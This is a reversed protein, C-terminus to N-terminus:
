SSAILEDLKGLVIARDAVFDHSIWWDTFDSLIKGVREGQPVGRAIIDAGSIPLEPIALQGARQWADVWTPTNRNVTSGLKLKYAREFRARGLRFLVARLDEDKFQAPEILGVDRPMAALTAKMDNSLRLRDAIQEVLNAADSACGELPLLSALRVVADPAGAIRDEFDAIVDFKILGASVGLIRNLIGTALMQHLVGGAHPAPLIKFLENRVREASLQDLGAQLENCAVLGNSDPVGNTYVATFRFFRLIRLYDERIRTRADGIFRVRRGQLDQLGGVCDFVSGSQDAYLANITFDRRRADERWDNSFAIVAHRGDTEVDRRFTTVEFTEDGVVVTVTGHDIGTPYVRFGAAKGRSMVEDPHLSTTLDIEHALLGLLTNRVAGGVAFADHGGETLCKFLSQLAPKGLWDASNLNAVAGTKPAAPSTM